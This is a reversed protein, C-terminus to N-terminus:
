KLYLAPRFGGRDNVFGPGYTSRFSAPSISGDAGYSGGRVVRVNNSYAEMSFEFANGAMDYINKVKNTAFLDVIGDSNTDVNLDKGTKHDPNGSTYNNSYWGMSTSDEIYKKGSVCPNPVDKIFNIAADWQLGYCLTSVVNYDNEEPYLSRALAVAGSTGVNTMGAGWSISNWVDAGKKSVVTNNDGKGAEYRAIYFGGHKEVSAKMKNYEEVEETYSVNSYPESLNEFDDGTKGKGWDKVKFENINTVPIWVYQNYKEQVDLMSTDKESTSTWNVTTGTPIEYVVLGESM